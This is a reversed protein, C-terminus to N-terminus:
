LGMNRIKVTKIQFRRHFNDNFPGWDVGSATTYTTTDTFHGDERYARALISIQVARIDELTTTADGDSDLYHFEIAQINEAIPQFGGGTDRGLPAAGADALGDNDTDNANSFGFAVIEGGFPAATPITGDGNIDQTFSFRGATALTIGAGANGTPDFGAMRIERVMMDLGARINQQMEAVQEQVLYTRQQTIYATYIAGMIIGAITMAIMLEVLTFGYSNNSSTNMKQYDM